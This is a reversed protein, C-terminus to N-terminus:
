PQRLLDMTGTLPPAEPSLLANALKLYARVVNGNTKDVWYTAEVTAKSEGETEGGTGTIKWTDTTGVKEDGVLKFTIKYGPVDLKEDKVGTADWTDNVAVPKSPYILSGLHVIRLASGASAQNEGSKVDTATGDPKLTVTATTEPVPIDNGMANVTLKDTESTVVSNADVSKIEETRTGGIEIDGAGGMEFKGTVKYSAKDGVKPSWKLDMAQAALALASVALLGLPLVSRLRMAISYAGEKGM